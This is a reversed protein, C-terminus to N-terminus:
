GKPRMASSLDGPPRGGGGRATIPPPRSRYREYLRYHRNEKPDVSRGDVFVREVETRIELPDGDTVILSASKGVEISGLDDEVGLVRAPYLTVARLAEDHPLGFAAAMAAQYPLGRVMAAAFTGGSSAICFTVGAEHLKMAETYRTDYPEDERTPLALVGSLIVPVQKERLLDAVRWLDGSGVIAFRLDQEDAWRIASKLQRVEGAHIFVPVKGEIVSRMAELRRDIEVREGKAAARAKAYARSDDFLDGIREIRKTRQKKQDEESAPPGFRSRRRVNFSPWRV